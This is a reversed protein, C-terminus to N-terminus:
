CVCARLAAHSISAREGSCTLLGAPVSGLPKVAGRWGDCSHTLTHTHTHTHTHTLTHSHTHTHTHSLTYMVQTNQHVSALTTTSAMLVLRTIRVTMTKATTLTLRVSRERSARQVHVGVCCCFRWVDGSVCM